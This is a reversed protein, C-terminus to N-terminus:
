VCLMEKLTAYSESVDVPTKVAVALGDLQLQQAELAQIMTASLDNVQYAVSALAQIVYNKAEDFAKQSEDPTSAAAYSRSIHDALPPLNTASKQLEQRKQPITQQLLGAVIQGPTAM